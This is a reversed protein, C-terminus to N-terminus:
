SEDYVLLQFKALVWLQQILVRPSLDANVRAKHVHEFCMRARFPFEFAVSIRLVSGGKLLDQM